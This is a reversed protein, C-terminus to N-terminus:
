IHPFTHYLCRVGSGLAHMTVPNCTALRIKVTLSLMSMHIMYEKEGMNNVGSDFSFNIESNYREYLLSGKVFIM